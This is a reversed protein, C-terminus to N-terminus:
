KLVYSPGYVRKNALVSPFFSPMPHTGFGSRSSTKVRSSRERGPSTPAMEKSLAGYRQGDVKAM